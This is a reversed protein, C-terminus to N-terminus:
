TLYTVNKATLFDREKRKNSQYNKREEKMADVLVEYHPLPLMTPTDVDVRIKVGNVTVNRYEPKGPTYPITIEKKPMRSIAHAMNKEQQELMAGSAQERKEKEISELKKRAEAVQAARLIEEDTMEDLSKKKPAPKEAVPEPALVEDAQTLAPKEYVPAPTIPADEAEAIQEKLKDIGTLHWSKIGLERARARIASDETTNVNLNAM